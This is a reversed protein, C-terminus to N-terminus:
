RARGGGQRPRKRYRVHACSSPTLPPSPALDCPVGRDSEVGRLAACRVKRGAMSKWCASPVTWTQQWCDSPRVVQPLPRTCPLPDPSCASERCMRAQCTSSLPPKHNAGAPRGQSRGSGCGVDAAEAAWRGAQGCRFGRAYRALGHASFRAARLVEEGCAGAGVVLTWPSDGERGGHGRGEAWEGMKGGCTARRTPPPRPPPQLRPRPRSRAARGAAGPASVPQWHQM